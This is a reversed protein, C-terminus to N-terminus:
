NIPTLHGKIVIFHPKQKRAALVVVRGHGPFNGTVKCYDQKILM